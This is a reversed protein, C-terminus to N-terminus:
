KDWVDIISLSNFEDPSYAVNLMVNGCIEEAIDMIDEAFHDYNGDFELPKEPELKNIWGEINAIMGMDNKTGACVRNMFLCHKKYEGDKIRFQVKLMPRGDKTAALELKEIEGIYEGEPLEKYQGQNQSAEQVQKRVEDKNVNKNFKAFISMNM